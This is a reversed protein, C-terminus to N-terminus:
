LLSQMRLNLALHIYGPALQMIDNFCVNTTGFLEDAEKEMDIAAQRQEQMAAPESTVATHTAM